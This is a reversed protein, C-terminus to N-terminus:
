RRIQIQVKQDVQTSEAAAEALADMLLTEFARDGKGRRNPAKTHRLLSLWTQDGYSHAAILRSPGMEPDPSYVLIVVYQCDCESTRHHPCSCAAPSDLAAQLNFTPLVRLGHSELIEQVRAMVSDCAEDFRVTQYGM